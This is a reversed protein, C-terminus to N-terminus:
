SSGCCSGPACGKVSPNSGCCTSGGPADSTDTGVSIATASMIKELRSGGCSSCLAKEPSQGMGVLFETVSGCEACRYEYIPM